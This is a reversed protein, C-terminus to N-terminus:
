YLPVDRAERMSEKFITDTYPAMFVVDAEGRKRDSMQLLNYKASPTELFTGINTKQGGM